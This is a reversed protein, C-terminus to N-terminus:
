ARAIKVSELPHLRLRPGAKMVQGPLARGLHRELEVAVGILPELAIGSELGLDNLLNILDESCINGAAGPAFPCGGLGGVSSEFSRVGLRLATAVNVLGIGRTNHFHLTLGMDPLEAMVLRCLNEVLPPTAMGTTDALTLARSAWPTFRM